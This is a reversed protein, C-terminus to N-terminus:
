QAYRSCHPQKVHDWIRQFFQYLSLWEGCIMISKSPEVYHITAQAYSSWSAPKGFPLMSSSLTASKNSRPSNHRISSLGRNSQKRSMHAAHDSSKYEISNLSISGSCAPRVQSAISLTSPANCAHLVLFAAVWGNLRFSEEQSVFLDVKDLRIANVDTVFIM